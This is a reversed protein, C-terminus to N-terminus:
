KLLRLAEATRQVDELMPMHGVGKLEVFGAHTIVEKMERGREVPILADADGHVIVVAFKLLPLLSTSDEREAMAKLAGSVGAQSQRMIVERVMEQVHPDASLKPALADTAVGVGNGSVKDAMDYRGQKREPTDALAQSSVLGLGRVHTPYSRTFALAVYGGMSHGVVAAKEIGLQELLGAVDSAMDDITYTENVVTSQGFGRLDPLIVDFADELLAVTGDWTTHDFPFGHILVLPTGKGRRDYALSIGNVNIKEM